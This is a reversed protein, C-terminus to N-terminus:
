ARILRKNKMEPYHHYISALLEQFSLSRVWEAVRRIYNNPKQDMSGLIESGADFGDATLVFKRHRGTNIQEVQGQIELDNLAEYVARDFPGHHHPEFNFCRGGIDESAESDILFLATQIQIPSFGNNRGGGAMAALLIAKQEM